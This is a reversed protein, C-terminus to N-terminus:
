FRGALSTNCGEPIRPRMTRPLLLQISIQCDTSLLRSAKSYRRDLFALVRAPEALLGLRLTALCHSERRAGQLGIYWHRWRYSTNRGLSTASEKPPLLLRM